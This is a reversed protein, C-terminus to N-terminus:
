VPHEIYELIKKQYNIITSEGQKATFDIAYNPSRMANQVAECVYNDEQMFDGSNLPNNSENKATYLWSIASGLIKTTISPMARTRTEIISKDPSIPIVHFTSWTSESEALGLNPFLMPVYAGMEEEKIHDIMEMEPKFNESLPEYFWYHPGEWGYKAQKHDYMYLTKQHLYRLHYVDMFNEVIIKWNANVEHRTSYETYEQLKDPQHPGLYPEVKAFWERAPKANPDPHVWLMSRWVEVSAGHLCINNLDYEAFETDREPIGTLKGELNYSWHHYPCTMFDTLKGKGSVLPTGRHRCVNHFAKLKGNSNIVVIPHQGVQIATYSGHESVDECFGAFQWTKSFILEQEKDFWEQSLYAAKPLVPVKTNM